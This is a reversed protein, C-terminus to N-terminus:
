KYIGRVRKKSPDFHPFHVVSAPIRKQHDDLKGIEIDTGIEAYEINMRCLAITKGLIPSITSSTVEGVKYRGSFVGDGTSATERGVIDLGVLKRQPSAKRKELAERGIFNDTKSILPVTFPIGAEFPDTQECFEQGAILLGAEIRLMDLAELGMPKVNQIGNKHRIIQWVEAAHRPHCFIEFGLEGTYGTRSVVIPIGESDLMRGISFRFWQLEEVTAQNPRTWIVKSLIERSAPGQVQLNALQDTASKVWVKLGLKEAQERLWLGSGDCGGIWRFNNDGLRFVTGDDIMGGSKNCMATYTVQGIALKKMNRTVCTQLLLEADPGLVEYKRLPSLDIMVVDERCAWYEELAGQNTFSNPVWYGSYEVFDRTLKSTEPHFGTEQTMTMEADPTKRIAISRKFMEQENYSRVQIDTPMWANTSNVDDPCSSSLCVLDQVARMLIYDGPRSWPEDSNIQFSDDLFTNFFVNIATWGNRPAIPYKEVALNFNDSCNVHGPYGAEDYTKSTCALGFSDHKGCTDQIVEVLPELESNFFKSYLGPMPYATGLMSRTATFDICQEVGRDLDKLSFCQFDTCQRGDIDIIHIYEGAKIEYSQATAAEVTFDLRPDALPDPIEHSIHQTPQIRNIWVVLDTPPNQADVRMSNGPAGIMATCDTECTLNAQSGPSTEGELFVATEASALNIGQEKLKKRIKKAGPSNQHLMEVLQTGVTRVRSSFQGTCIKSNEDFAVVHAYQLGEPDVIEIGDGAFLPILVVSQARVVYRERGIGFNALGPERPRSLKIEPLHISAELNASM